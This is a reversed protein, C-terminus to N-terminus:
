KLLYVVQKQSCGQLRQAVNGARECAARYEGPNAKFRLLYKEIDAAGAVQFGCLSSELLDVADHFDDMYPGYFPAKHWLAAEMINHGGKRVLSGGCFVYTAISYLQALEGMTDIIILAQHRKESGNQINSFLQYEIGEKKLLSEIEATREIHRPALLFLRGFNHYKSVYLRLLMKEEGTHTSGAVFVESKGINLLERLKQQIAERDQPPTLDYKVNGLASITTKEAGLTIYKQRYNESIVAMKDFQKMTHQFLVKFKLYKEYARDSIRGNAMGVKVEKRSLCDILIPWLETEICIYSTPEIKKVAREVILPIDLPALFCRISSKLQKRAINRGHLTMTTVIIEANSDMKELAAIIARAAQVEGVSAAHLWYTNGGKITRGPLSYFAFRELLGERHRGTLWVFLLLFPLATYFFIAILLRYCYFL